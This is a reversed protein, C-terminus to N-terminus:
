KQIYTLNDFMLKLTIDKPFQLRIFRLFQLNNEKMDSIAIINRNYDLLRWKKLGFDLDLYVVRKSTAKFIICASPSFDGYVIQNSRFNYPDFFLYQIISSIKRQLIKVSDSRISDVPNKNVLECVITRAGIIINAVSDNIVKTYCSDKELIFNLGTHRSHHASCSICVFVMLSISMIAKIRKM